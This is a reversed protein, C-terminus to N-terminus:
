LNQIMEPLEAAEKDGTEFYTIKRGKKKNNSKTKWKIDM